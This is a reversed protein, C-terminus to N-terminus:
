CISNTNRTFFSTGFLQAQPIESKLREPIAEWTQLWWNRENALTEQQEKLQIEINNINAKIISKQQLINNEKIQHQHLEQKIQAHANELIYIPHVLSILEKLKATRDGWYRFEELVKQANNITKIPNIQYDRAISKLTEPIQYSQNVEQFLLQINQLFNSNNKSSSIALKLLWFDIEQTLRKLWKNATSISTKTAENKIM